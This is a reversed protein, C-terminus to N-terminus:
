SALTDFPAFHKRDDLHSTQCQCDMQESLEYSAPESLVGASDVDVSRRLAAEPVVELASTVVSAVPNCSGPRTGSFYTGMSSDTASSTSCNVPSQLRFTKDLHAQAAQEFLHELVRTAEMQASCESELEGIANGEAAHSSLDSELTTMCEPWSSSRCVVRDQSRAALPVLSQTPAFDIGYSQEEPFRGDFNQKDNPEVFAVCELVPADRRDSSIFCDSPVDVRPPIEEDTSSRKDDVSCGQLPISASMPSLKTIEVEQSEGGTDVAIHELVPADTDEHSICCKAPSGVQLPLTNGARVPRVGTIIDDSLHSEEVAPNGACDPVMLTAGAHFLSCDDVVDV